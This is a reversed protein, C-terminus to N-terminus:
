LLTWHKLVNEPDLIVFGLRSVVAAGQGTWIGLAERGEHDMVLVIDGRNPIDGEGTPINYCEAIYIMTLSLGGHEKLIELAQRPSQYVKDWILIGTMENVLAVMFMACDHYGWTFPTDQRKELEKTLREPWDPLKHIM